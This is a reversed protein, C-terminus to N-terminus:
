ECPLQSHGGVLAAVQKFCFSVQTICLTPPAVTNCQPERCLNWDNISLWMSLSVIITQQVFAATTTVEGSLDRVNIGFNECIHTRWISSLNAVERKAFCDTCRDQCVHKVIFNREVFARMGSAVALSPGTRKVLAAKRNSSLKRISM